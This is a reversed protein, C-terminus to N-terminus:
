LKYQRKLIYEIITRANSALRGQMKATLNARMAADTRKGSRYLRHLRKLLVGVERLSAPDPLTRARFVVRGAKELGLLIKALTQLTGNESMLFMHEVDPSAVTFCRTPDNLVLRATWAPQTGDGPVGGADRIPSGQGPNYNGQVWDCSVSGVTDNRATKGDPALQVGRINHFRSDALPACLTQFVGLEHNLEATDFGLSAPYRMWGGNLVGQTWPDFPRKSQQDQNPYAALPYAPVQGQDTALQAGDRAYTGNLDLFHLVYLGPMTAIIRAMAERDRDRDGNLMPEGEFWRHVQSAYGYFPTAVTIARYLKQSVAADGGRLILNVVMGGFSHGLLSFKAAAQSIGANRLRGLFHPWFRKVFFQAADGQRRRWDWNFVFLDVGNDRCWEILGDHPTAGDFNVAGDAIVIYHDADRYVGDADKQMGLKLAGRTFTYCNLWLMQYRIKEGPALKEFKKRSRKLQCAMGGPFFILTQRDPSSAANRYAQIFDTIASDHVDLQEQDRLDDYTPAPTTGRRGAPRAKRAPTKSM